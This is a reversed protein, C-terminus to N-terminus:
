CTVATVLVESVLSVFCSLTVGESDAVELSDTVSVSGTTAEVSVFRISSSVVRAVRKTSYAKVM